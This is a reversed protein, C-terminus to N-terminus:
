RSIEGRGQARHVPEWDGIGHQYRIRVQDGAQPRNAWHESPHAVVINRGVDQLVCRPDDSWLVRGVYRGTEHNGQQVVCGRQEIFAKLDPLSEILAAAPPLPAPRGPAPAIRAVESQLVAPIREALAADMQMADLCNRVYAPESALLETAKHLSSIIADGYAGQAKALADDPISGWRDIMLALDIADRSLTSRDGWRDDNALLKEAYMDSRSLVPIGFREDIAGTIPIRGELVIEFRLPAGALDVFARIGYQDTKVDRLLPITQGDAALSDLGPKTRIAERLARYGNIDGCVFDVDVSERYEGSEPSLVIATGGGFYTHCDSFLSGNLKRLFDAIQNHRDHEFLCCGM